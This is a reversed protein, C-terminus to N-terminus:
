PRTPCVGLAGHRVARSYSFIQMGMLELAKFYLHIAVATLLALSVMKFPSYYQNRFRQCLFWIKSRFPYVAFVVISDFLLEIVIEIHLHINKPTVKLLLFLLYNVPLM